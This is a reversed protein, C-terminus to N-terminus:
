RYREVKSAIMRVEEFRDPEVGHELLLGAQAACERCLRTLEDRMAERRTGFSTRMRTRVTVAHQYLLQTLQYRAHTNDKDERLLGRLDKALSDPDVDGRRLHKAVTVDVVLRRRADAMEPRSLDDAIEQVTPLEGDFGLWRRYATIRLERVAALSARGRELRDLCALADKFANCEIALRARALSDRPNATAHARTLSPRGREHEGVAYLLEGLMAAPGAAGRLRTIWHEMAPLAALVARRTEEKSADRGILELAHAVSPHYVSHPDDLLDLHREPAGNRQWAQWIRQYRQPFDASSDLRNAAARFVREVAFDAALGTLDGLRRLYTAPAGLRLVAKRVTDDAPNLALQDILRLSALVDGSSETVPWDDTGVIEQALRVKWRVRGTIWATHAEEEDSNSAERTRGAPDLAADHAARFATRCLQEFPGRVRKPLPACATTVLNLRADLAEDLQSRRVSRAVGLRLVPSRYSLARNLEELRLHAIALAVRAPSTLEAPVGRPGLDDTGGGCLARTGFSGALVRHVEARHWAGRAPTGALLAEAYLAEVYRSWAWTAAAVEGASTHAVALNHLVPVSLPNEALMAQWHRRAATLAGVRHRSEALHGNLYSRLLVLAGTGRLEPPYADLSRWALSANDALAQAVEAVAAAPHEAALRRAPAAQEARAPLQAVLAVIAPSPPVVAAPGSSLKRRVSSLHANLGLPQQLAKECGEVRADFEETALKQAKFKQLAVLRAVRMEELRKAVDTLLAHDAHVQDSVTAGRLAKVLTGASKKLRAVTLADQEFGALLDAPDADESDEISVDALMRPPTPRTIARLASAMADLHPAPDGGTYTRAATFAGLDPVRLPRWLVRRQHILAVLLDPLEKRALCEALRAPVADEDMEFLECVLDLMRGAPGDGGPWALRRITAPPYGHVLWQVALVTFAAAGGPRRSALSAIRHLEGAVADRGRAGPPHRLVLEAGIDHIGSWRCEGPRLFAEVAAGLDDRGERVSAAIEDAREREQDAYDPDGLRQEHLNQHVISLHAWVRHNAPASEAAASLWRLAADLRGHRLHVLGAHYPHKPNVPDLRHAKVLLELADDPPTSPAVALRFWAEALAELEDARLGSGREHRAQLRNAIRWLAEQRRELAITM